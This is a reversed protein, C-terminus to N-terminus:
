VLFPTKSYDGSIILNNFEKKKKKKKKKKKELCPLSYVKM